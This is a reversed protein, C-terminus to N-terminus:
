PPTVAGIVAVVVDAGIDVLYPLVLATVAVLAVLSFLLASAKM